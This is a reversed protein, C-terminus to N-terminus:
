KKWGEIETLEDRTAEVLFSVGVTRTSHKGDRGYVMKGNKLCGILEWVSDVSAVLEQLEIITQAQAKITSEMM